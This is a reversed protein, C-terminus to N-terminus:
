FNRALYAGFFNRDGLPQDYSTKGGGYMAFNMSFQWKAPNQIFNLYFNAVYAGQMFNAGLTPTRGNMARFYYLGPVVQWGPIISGDYVVSFDFNLGWSSKTGASYITAGGDNSWGWLGSDVLQSVPTGDPSLRTYEQKLDPFSVVVAEALLTATDAGIAKLFAGHDGPTLSLLGTVHLQFRKSDIYQNCQAAPALGNINDGAQGPNYCGSLAVADKPRYSLEAGIAWDGLPFNVSAGYLLRNELFTWQAESQGNIFQLNPTKDHYNMAYLGYNVSSGQPQYHLAVGWQGSNKPLQNGALPIFPSPPIGLAETSAPDPGLYIPQQGTGYIDVVSWYGGVPPFRTRNWMFQYYAELSVGGGLGASLSILPAPLFAEKIQTGPQSLKQIDVANTSNIGGPLFLSEGWNLYQNGLRLGVRKGDDLQWQKGVWLDLLYIEHVIEDKAAQSLPTRATDDAAPDLLWRVRGLVKWDDRFNLLLEHNGKIYGTYLDGARYNLNGDDGNAWGFVDAAACYAPDGVRECSPNNARLGLGATVTSDFNGRVGEFEFTFAQAAGSCLVSAALAMRGAAVPLIRSM